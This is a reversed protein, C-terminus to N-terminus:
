GVADQDLGALGIRQGHLRAIQTMEDAGSGFAGRDIMRFPEVSRQLAVGADPDAFYKWWVLSPCQQFPRQHRLLLDRNRRMVQEPDAQRERGTAHVKVAM